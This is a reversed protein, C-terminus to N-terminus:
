HMFIHQKWYFIGRFEVRDPYYLENCLVSELKFKLGTLSTPLFLNVSSGSSDDLKSAFRRRIAAYKENECVSKYVNALLFCKADKLVQSNLWANISKFMNQACYIYRFSFYHKIDVDTVTFKVKSLLPLADLATKLLIISSVLVQSKRAYDVGM